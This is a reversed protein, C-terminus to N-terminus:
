REEPEEKDGDTFKDKGWKLADDVKPLLDSPTIVGALEPNEAIVEQHIEYSLHTEYKVLRKVNEEDDETLFDPREEPNM